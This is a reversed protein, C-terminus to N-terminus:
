LGVRNRMEGTGRRATLRGAGTGGISRMKFRTHEPTLGTVKKLRSVQSKPSHTAILTWSGAEPM